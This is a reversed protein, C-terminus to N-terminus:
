GVRAAGVIHERIPPYPGFPFYRLSEIEFGAERITPETDRNAHCGGAIYGWLPQLRDQWRAIRPDESRIHEIFLLTGGPRLVRRIQSLARDPQQVSCLVLTSVAVDFSGDEFPLNEARAPRLRIRSHGDGAVRRARRLMYPDPETAVVETVTEPYYRFNFGPGTGIEIVRGAARSLLRRRVDAFESLEALRGMATYAASFVPRGRM